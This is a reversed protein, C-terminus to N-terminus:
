FEDLPIIIRVTSGQDPEMITLSASPHHLALRMKINKIAMSNQDTIGNDFGVGTDTVEITLQQLAKTINLTILGQHGLPALGHIIANEIIPQILLPPLRCDKLRDEVKEIFRIHPFRTQQIAIYANILALEDKVVGDTTQTSPLTQRLFFTYDALLVEAKQPETNIYQKINELTNFLFHPNIQAQLLLLKHAQLAKDTESFRNKEFSLEKKAKIKADMYQFLLMAPIAIISILIILEPLTLVERLFNIGIFSSLLIPVPLFYYLKRNDENFPPYALKATQITAVMGLGISQAALFTTVINAHKNTISIFLVVGCNIIFTIKVSHMVERIDNKTIVISDM